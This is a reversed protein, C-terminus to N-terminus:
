SLIRATKFGLGFPHTKSPDTPWASKRHHWTSKLCSPVLTSATWALVPHFDEPRLAGTWASVQRLRFVQRLHFVQRLCVGTETLVGTEPPVGIFSTPIEKANM